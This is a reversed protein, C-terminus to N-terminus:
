GQAKRKRENVKREREYATLAERIKEPLCDRRGRYIWDLTLGLGDCLKIATELAPSAKQREINNWSQISIDTLRCVGAQTLKLAERTMKLRVAIEQNLKTRGTESM